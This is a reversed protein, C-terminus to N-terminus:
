ERRLAASTASCTSFSNKSFARGVESSFRNAVGSSTAAMTINIQLGNLAAVLPAARRTSPPTTREGNQVAAKIWLNWRDRNACIEFSFLAVSFSPLIASTFGILSCRIRLLPWAKLGPRVSATFPICFFYGTFIQAIQPDCVETSQAVM